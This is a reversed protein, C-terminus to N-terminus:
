RTQLRTSTGIGMPSEIFGGTEDSVMPQSRHTVSDRTGVLDHEDFVLDSDLVTSNLRPNGSESISRRQRTGRVVGRDSM